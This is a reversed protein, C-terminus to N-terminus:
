PTLSELKKRVLANVVQGEARGAVKPMVAKMVKGLDKPGTAGVERIAEEVLAELEEPSLAKPLFSELVEVEREEKQALDERNGKRFEEAAERGKKVLARLVQYAEEDKLERGLEKEKNQLASLAFRLISLRDKAGEKLARKMEERVRELVAM